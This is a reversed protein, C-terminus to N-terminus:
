AASSSAHASGRPRKITPEEGTPEAERKHVRSSSGSSQKVRQWSDFPSSKKQRNQRPPSIVHQPVSTLGYMDSPSGEEIRADAPDRRSNRTPRTSPPTAAQFRQRFPTSPKPTATNRLEEDSQHEEHAPPSMPEELDTTAEEDEEDIMANGDHRAEKPPFLLRPKVNSRLLRPKAAVGAKRRIELDSLDDLDNDSGSNQGEDEYKRFYKKGRSRFSTLRPYQRHSPYSFKCFTYSARTM